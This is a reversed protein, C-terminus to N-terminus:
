GCSPSGSTSRPSGRGSPSCQPMLLEAAEDDRAATALLDGLNLRVDVLDPRLALAARYATEADPRYGANALVVGLDALVIPNRPALAAARRMRDVARELHNLRLAVIGGLHLAEVDGPHTLLFADNLTAARELDGARLLRTMEALPQREATSPPPPPSRRGPTSPAARKHAM